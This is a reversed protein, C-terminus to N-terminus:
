YHKMPNVMYPERVDMSKMSPHKSETQFYPDYDNRYREMNIRCHPCKVDSKPFSGFCKNCVNCKRDKVTYIFMIM